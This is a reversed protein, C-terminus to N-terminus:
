EFNLHVRMLMKLYKSHFPPTTPTFAVQCLSFFFVGVQSLGPARLHDSTKIMKIKKKIKLLFFSTVFLHVQFEKGATAYRLVVRLAGRPYLWTVSGQRCRLYVPHVGRDATWSASDDQELGSSFNPFFICFNTEHRPISLSNKQIKKCKKAVIKFKLQM